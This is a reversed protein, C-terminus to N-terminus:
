PQQVLWAELGGMDPPQAEQKDKEEELLKAQDKKLQDLEDQVAKSEGRLDELKQQAVALQGETDAISKHKQELKKELKNIKRQAAMLQAGKPKQKQLEEM